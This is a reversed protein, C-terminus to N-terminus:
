RKTPAANATATIASSGFAPENPIDTPVASMKPSNASISSSVLMLMAMCGNLISTPSMTFSLCFAFAYEMCDKRHLAPETTPKTNGYRNM